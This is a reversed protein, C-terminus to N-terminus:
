RRRMPSQNKADINGCGKGGGLAALWMKRVIGVNVRGCWAVHLHYNGKEHKELIAVYPFERDGSRADPSVSGVGGGM